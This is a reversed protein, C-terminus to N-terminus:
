HRGGAVLGGKLERASFEVLLRSEVVVAGSVVVWGM